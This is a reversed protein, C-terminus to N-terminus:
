DIEVGNGQDDWRSMQNESQYEFDPGAFRASNKAVNKLLYFPSNLLEEDGKCSDYLKRIVESEGDLELLEQFNKYVEIVRWPYQGPRELNHVIDGDDFMPEDVGKLKSLDPGKIKNARSGIDQINTWNEDMEVEGVEGKSVLPPVEGSKVGGNMQILKNVVSAPVYPYVSDYPNFDEGQGHQSTEEFRILLKPIRTERTPFGIEVHTYPGEDNRPKSYHSRSAQISVKGGNNFEVRGYLPKFKVVPEKEQSPENMSQFQSQESLPKRYGHKKHQNLIQERESETLTFNKYM